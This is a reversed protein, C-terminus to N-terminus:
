PLRGQYYQIPNPPKVFADMIHSNAMGIIHAIVLRMEVIRRLDITYMILTSLVARQEETTVQNRLLLGALHHIARDMIFRQIQTTLPNVNQNIQSQQKEMMKVHQM